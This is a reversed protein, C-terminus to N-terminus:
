PAAQAGAPAAAARFVELETDYWRTTRGLPTMGLRRCVAVSAENGPRVVALIEDLGAAFGRRLAARAAETAYGNGWSDPHLHWGVEVEGGEDEEDEWDADGADDDGENGANAADDENVADDEDDENVEDGENGANGDNRADGANGANGADGADADAGGTTGAPMPLPVLLVTGAVVGTERVEVAWVGLGRRDDIRASWREVASEADDRNSMVRPTAGLWRAVQWQSYIDFIRDVDATSHTWPRVVLRDTGFVESSLAM